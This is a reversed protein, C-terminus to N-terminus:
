EVPFLFQEAVWGEVGDLTRIKQWAYRGARELGELLFVGSGDEILVVVEGNPADRLNVGGVVRVEADYPPKTPTDTPVPTPEVTPETQEPTPEAQETTPEAVAEDTVLQEVVVEVTPQAVAEEETVTEPEPLPADTAPPPETTIADPTPLQETLASDTSPPMDTPRVTPLTTPQLEVAAPEDRRQFFQQVGFLVIAVVLLGVGQLFRTMAARRARLRGVGYRSRNRGGFLGQLAFLIGLLGFLGALILISADIWQADLTM